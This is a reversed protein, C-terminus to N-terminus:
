ILLENIIGIAIQELIAEDENRLNESFIKEEETLGTTDSEVLEM